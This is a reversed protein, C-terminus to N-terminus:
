HKVLMNYMKNAVFHGACPGCHNETIILNRLALPVVVRKSNGHCCDIYHLVGDILCFSPAQAAISRAIREDEPLTGNVLYEKIMKVDDDKM